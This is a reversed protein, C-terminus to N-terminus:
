IDAVVVFREDTVPGGWLAADRSLDESTVTRISPPLAAEVEYRRLGAGTHWFGEILVLRGGPRLLRTWNALAAAPHPLAWLVHRCLVADFGAAPLAPHAAEGLTFTVNAGAKAAKERAVELMRTSSDIGTVTLGLEAMLLSLTGTGCGIDLAGGSPPLLRRVLAAWRERAVPDRLGHDPAEDFTGAEDDWPNRTEAM